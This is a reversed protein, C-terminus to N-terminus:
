GGAGVQVLQTAVGFTDEPDLDIVQWDDLGRRPESQQPHGGRSAVGAAAAAVDDVEYSVLFFGEGHRRLHAAPAGEEGTPQVLVIWVEGLRFRATLVGRAPLSDRRSVRVGLLREYREVARDLDRVLFNIHHIGKLM